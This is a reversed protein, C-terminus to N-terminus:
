LFRKARLFRNKAQSSDDETQICPRNWTCTHVCVVNVRANVLHTINKTYLIIYIIDATLVSWLYPLVPEHACLNGSPKNMVNTSNMLQAEFCLKIIDRKKGWHLAPWIWVESLKKSFALSYESGSKLM